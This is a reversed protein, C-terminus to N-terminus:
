RAIVPLTVRSPRDAGRYLRNVATRMDDLAERAIVGGTNSNRDRRPFSSSSVEVLIRHGPLFVNSTALMDVTIEYVQGPEVLEPEALSDRYRMRVIGDCLIIARGDPFVDVLKATFDTDVASSSVFLTATVPGTVEIPETLEPTSFCLVDDRGHVSRQDAPGNDADLIGTTGGSSPVPDAPDYLYTDVMEEAPVASTLVGAGASTNAAGDGALYFPTYSTDPLPWDPEDRWEDIGMVFLRVAPIQELAEPKGRLHHDFFALHLGTPDTAAYAAATGFKRAANRGTMNDHSWPGVILHAGARGKMETYARLSEGIFLDYWGATILAPTRISDIRDSSSIARWSEDREPHAIADTVTWPFLRGLLPQDAVPTPETFMAADALGAGLTVMDALDGDGRELQRQVQGVGIFAGWGLVAELSLAGGPGYWPSRYLDPSAFAPAIAKLGPVGTAAAQWQTIGLYSVGFMGVNGDCWQQEVLWNITDVADDFDDVHAVFEGESAYTGRCDQMAVAYGERVLTLWNASYAGWMFVDFKDYPNRVFLVPVPADSDPLYLDVALKTGDRMPVMVNSTATFNGSM